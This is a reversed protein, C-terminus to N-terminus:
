RKTKILRAIHERNRKSWVSQPRRPTFRQKHSLDDHGAAQSDIWGYCLAVDLAEAYTIGYKGSAKKYFRVWIGTSKVHNKAMWKEFAAPTTFTLMKMPGTEKM